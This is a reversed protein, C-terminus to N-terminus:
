NDVESLLEPNDYVTGIKKYQAVNYLMSRYEDPQGIQVKWYGFDIWKIIYNFVGDTIIDHEYLETQSKDKLGTYQGVTEQLVTYVNWELGFTEKKPEYAGIYVENDRDNVILNGYVWEKTDVRQGRYNRQM